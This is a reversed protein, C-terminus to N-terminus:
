SPFLHCRVELAPSTATFASDNLAFIPQSTLSVSFLRPFQSRFRHRQRQLRNSPSPLSNCESVCQVTVPALLLKVDSCPRNLAACPAWRRRQRRQCDPHLHGQSRSEPVGHQHAAHVQCLTVSKSRRLVGPRAYELSLSDEDDGYSVSFLYPVETTNGVDMMWQLFPEQGEHLGAM